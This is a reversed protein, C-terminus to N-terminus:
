WLPTWRLRNVTSSTRTGTGELDLIPPAADDLCRWAVELTRSLAADPDVRMSVSLDRAFDRLYDELIALIEQATLNILM